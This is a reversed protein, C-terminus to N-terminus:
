AVEVNLAIDQKLGNWALSAGPMLSSANTYTSAKINEIIGLLWNGKCVVM